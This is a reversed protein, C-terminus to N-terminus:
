RHTGGSKAGLLLGRKEYKTDNRQKAKLNNLFIAKCEIVILVLM